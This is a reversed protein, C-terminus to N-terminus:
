CHHRRPTDLEIHFYEVESLVRSRCSPSAMSSTRPRSWCAALGFYMAHNPSIWLDRKPVNDDLAGAKICIPLIDKRGMVFRGKYSRRGIWKIPRATGSMTLVNDGIALDEVAVEDRDTRIQTGRCYCPVGGTFTIAELGTTADHTATFGSLPTGFYSVNTFAYTGGGPGGTTVTLGNTTFSVNSVSTGPLELVDGATLDEFLAGTSAAPNSLAITGGNNIQLNSADSLSALEVLGGVVAQYSNGPDTASNDIFSSGAGIAGYSNGSTDIAGVTVTVPGPANGSDAFLTTLAGSVMVTGVTLSNAIVYSEGSTVNLSALSLSAIDDYGSGDATVTAGDSPVGASWNNPDSWLYSGALPGSSAAETDTFVDPSTFTIAELGTTADHTATFGSLPTGFYSVNTFAYTGGGPGGTTVTLGNTTFSVNSVSTGPLELVDGATLDEFLAGTSAAPNSLAITGGNNIQLNSADSLSALEVLGGVVAQYSNGPDTASNDIFSSGAGIAGYSNGSTDIAGVTVTVPGPANGSDAFLTTLAGSVMVTGVTLSNAIVYSEGSTVNLSALSLSAIDDYGSGDATVTAGDSPVGASWNNPDSWLYSGALPGSSAAETDTFVDPSTFTIAELGTTADHTATFGSLPTGFYSVNTFAYTGGGPGGTTVTLGNTTFSVNSVSTGPLELVDGATLDEFLAGTSAAPNSLAITGGNNIQLNSADSLSALEVLGGVVAQYSNGPDTASNDIFSSGAGIAGYSNGSTDIAGVTVTVPGPANGSDAFLTTLAGSVMVTGVTLSNAIVYSEGSTVNLSALSLSAIDDYGSGDATVTAGDSPVGASWNNPDSWLYSGALPGSSAAETDTFVDPTAAALAITVSGNGDANEGGTLTVDTAVPAIFSGGGGGVNEEGGGGGSFGGGGGAGISDSNAGGGGGFGGNHQTNLSAGIGGAGGALFGAGGDGFAGDGGASDFGGGGGGSDSGATSDVFAGAAGGSGATGGAGGFSTGAGNVYNGGATGSTGAQGAGGPGGASGTGGSGASAGGGGGAAELLTDTTVDFVFSGGGGSGAGGDQGSGVGGVLIELEDGAALTFTGQVEAGAGGTYGTALGGGTAGTGTIVYTGSTPVTFTDIKGDESFVGGTPSSPATPISVVVNDLGIYNQGQDGQFSITSTTSTATFDLTEPTWTNGLATPAVNNFTTTVPGATVSVGVPNISPEAFDGNTILNTGTAGNGTQVLSVNDLGIYDGGQVGQISITSSAATATFDVTEAVWQNGTGTPSVNEITQTAPGATVSVGIPGTYYVSSNDVGLYFTLAYTQGVTTAVTQSVGFYPANDRYGALSVFYNGTEATLGYSNANSLWAVGDNGTATGGIVTWGPM